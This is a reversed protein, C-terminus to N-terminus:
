QGRSLIIVPRNDHGSKDVPCIELKQWQPFQEKVLKKVLEITIEM